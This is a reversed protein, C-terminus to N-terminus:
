YNNGNLNFSTLDLTRYEQGNTPNIFYIKKAVADTVDNTQSRRGAILSFSQQASAPIGSVLLCSIVGACVLFKPIQFQSSIRTSLPYAPFSGSFNRNLRQRM